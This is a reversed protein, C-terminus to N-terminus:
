VILTQVGVTRNAQTAGSQIEDKYKCMDWDNLFGTPTSEGADSVDPDVDILINGVSVDRHLIGAKEWAERHASANILIPLGLAPCLHLSM